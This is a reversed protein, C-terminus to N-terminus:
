RDGLLVGDIAEFAHIVEDVTNYAHPSFRLGGGRTSVNVGRPRLADAIVQHDVEGLSAIVIGSREERRATPTLVEFGRREAEEIVVDTLELIRSSIWEVGWGALMEVSAALGAAPITQPAGEEFRRADPRLTLDYETFDMADTVSLWGVHVPELTDLLERRCYVFGVGEPGLMWKHGNAAAMDIPTRSVDLPMAGVGQIVDVVFTIGRERCLSGISDLDTRFGTGFQVYSLAVVKVTDDLGERILDVTIRGGIPDLFRTEVGKRRLALWPYVNAPFEGRCVVVRDGEGLPLGNAALLLGQSTSKIYAIEDEGAGILRAFASRGRDGAEWWQPLHTSGEECIDRAADVMADRCPGSLPGVAAHDLYIRNQTIPMASRATAVDM